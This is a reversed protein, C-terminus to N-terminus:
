LLAITFGGVWMVGREATLGGGGGRNKSLSLLAGWLLALRTEVRLMYASFRVGNCSHFLFFFTSCGWDKGRRKQMELRVLGTKVRKDRAGFQRQSDGGNCIASM